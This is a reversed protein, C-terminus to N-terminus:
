RRNIARFAGYMSVVFLCLATMYIIGGVLTAYHVIHLNSLLYNWDHIVGDGGLLELQMVEADRADSGCLIAQPKTKLLFEGSMALDLEHQSRILVDCRLDAASASLMKETNWGADSMWLVRWPGIRLLLVMARDDGRGHEMQMTPYLM